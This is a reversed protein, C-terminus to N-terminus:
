NVSCSELDKNDAFLKVQCRVHYAMDNVYLLFLLSGLVFKQPVVSTLEWEFFHGNVSVKMKWKLLNSSYEFWKDLGVHKWNAPNCVLIM